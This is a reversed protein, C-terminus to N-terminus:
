SLTVKVSSSALSAAYFNPYSQGLRPDELANVLDPICSEMHNSNLELSNCSIDLIKLDDNWILTLGLQKYLFYTLM